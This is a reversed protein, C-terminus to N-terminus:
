RVRARVIARVQVGVRLVVRHDEDVEADDDCQADGPVEVDDDLQALRVLHRMVLAIMMM